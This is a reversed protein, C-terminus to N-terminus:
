KLAGDWALREGKVTQRTACNVLERGDCLGVEAFPLCTERPRVTLRSQAVQEFHCLLSGFYDLGEGTCGWSTRDFATRGGPVAVVHTPALRWDALM